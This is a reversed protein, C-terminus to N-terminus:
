RKSSKCLLFQRYTMGTTKKFLRSAYSPDDFGVMYAAEKLTYKHQEVISMLANIRCQNIYDLVSIDKAERFIRSLHGASIGTHIAIEELTLKQASYSHIYATAKQVYREASPSCSVATAGLEKLVFSTLFASIHFWEGLAQARFVGTHTRFTSIMKQMLHTFEDLNNKLPINHPVLIHNDETVHQKLTELDIEDDSNWHIIDYDMKVGVSIHRQRENQYAYSHFVDDKFVPTMMGPYIIEKSGNPYAREMRGELCVSYELLNDSYFNPFFNKYARFDAHNAHNIVPFSKPIIECFLM